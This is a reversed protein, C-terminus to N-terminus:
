HSSAHGGSRKSPQVLLWRFAVLSSVAAILWAGWLSPLSILSWLVAVVDLWAKGVALAEILARALSGTMGAGLSVVLHPRILWSLAPLISPAAITALGTLTLAAALALKWGWALRAWAGRRQLGPLSGLVRASFGESPGSPPPLLAFVRGLARDAREPDGERESDVWRQFAEELRENM